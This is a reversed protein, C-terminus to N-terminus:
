AETPPAAYSRLMQEKETTYPPESFRMLNQGAGKVLVSRDHSFTRMTVEGHYAGNGSEGVGGFPLDHVGIQIMVSNIAVGGSSTRALFANTVAEDGSFVYMALPKDGANIYDIAADATPVSMVPLIPGFIEQAMVPDSPKVDTLVTPALYRDEPDVDGGIAIIAGDLLGVLRDLHRRNVVRGLDASERPNIGYLASIERQLANVLSPVVAAPAMVYDPAVCTQGANAFKGWALWHAAEDIDASSDIWVPSKGGLELTTPSLHKAAAAAVIRGVAGNGTYFIHDWPLALLETTEEVGGEVVLVGSGDLYQPILRAMLESTAPALESPKLVVTNGAAIAGVCPMLLLHVPYNWPSIILVTGLPERQIFGQAPQLADGVEITRPRAWQELNRMALEIEARVTGIEALHTELPHKGLDIGIAVEIDSGNEVLLMDLAALQQRRWALPRTRGSGYSARLADVQSTIARADPTITSTM